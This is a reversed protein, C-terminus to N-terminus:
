LRAASELLWVVYRGKSFGTVSQQLPIVPLFSCGLVARWKVVLHLVPMATLLFEIKKAVISQDSDM